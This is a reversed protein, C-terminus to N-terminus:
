KDVFLAARRHMDTYNPGYSMLGGAVALRVVHPERAAARKQDLDRLLDDKVAEPLDSRGLRHVEATYRGDVDALFSLEQHIAAQLEDAGLPLLKAKKTIEAHSRKRM